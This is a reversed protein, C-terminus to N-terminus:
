KTVLRPGSSCPQNTVHFEHIFANLEALAGEDGLVARRITAKM